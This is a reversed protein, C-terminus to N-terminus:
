NIILFFIHNIFEGRLSLGVTEKDPLRTTPSRPELSCSVHARAGGRRRDVEPGGLLYINKKM